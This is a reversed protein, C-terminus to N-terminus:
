AKAVVEDEDENSAVKALAAKIGDSSTLENLMGEIDVTQILEQYAQTMMAVSVKKLKADTPRFQEVAMATLNALVVKGVPTDIYGKVMLPAKAAVLKTVQNNAIRGAEMYGANVAVAKNNAVLKDFMNEEKRIQINQETKLYIEKCPNKLPQVASSCDNNVEFNKQGPLVTTMGEAPLWDPSDQGKKLVLYNERIDTISYQSYTAGVFYMSTDAMISKLMPLDAERIYALKQGRHIVAIAMGGTAQKNAEFTLLVNQPTKLRKVNDKAGPIHRMGVAILKEPLKSM